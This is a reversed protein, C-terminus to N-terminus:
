PLPVLVLQGIQDSSDGHGGGVREFLDVVSVADGLLVGFRNVTGAEDSSKVRSSLSSSSAM